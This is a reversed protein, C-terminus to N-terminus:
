PTPHPPHTRLYWPSFSSPPRVEIGHRHLDDLIQGAPYGTLQEIHVAALGLDTYAARLFAATPRYPTPFRQTISGPQPRRRIRYKRLLATVQPDRYLAALRPEVVDSVDTSPNVPAPGGTRVPVNHEHLTRLVLTVTTNLHAAIQGATWQRELYLERLLDPNLDTRSARSPRGRVEIGAAVLAARVTPAAANYAAGIQALTRREQVYLRHLVEPEPLVGGIRRPPAARPRRIELEQRRRTVRWTPVGYRAAIAADELRQTVYLDTLVAADIPVPPLLDGGRRPTIGHRQLAAAVRRVSVDLAAAIQTTTRGQATHWRLLEPEVDVNSQPTRPRRPIGAATLASTVRATTSGTAAAIDAITRQQQVYMERLVAETPAVPGSRTPGRPRPPPGTWGNNIMMSRVAWQSRGLRTATASVTLGADLLGRVRDPDLVDRRGAPRIQVGAARLRITVWDSSRGYRAAVAAIALGQRQYLEVLEVVLPDAPEVPLRRPASPVQVGRRRCLKRVGSTSYGTRAAIVAVSDGAAVWGALQAQDMQRLGHHMGPARVTIGCRRLVNRVYQSSWGSAAAIQDASWRRTVYRDTLWADTLVLRGSGDPLPADPPPTIM